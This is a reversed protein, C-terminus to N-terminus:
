IVKTSNGRIQTTFKEFINGTNPPTINVVIKGTLKKNASDAQEKTDYYLMLSASGGRLRDVATFIGLGPVSVKSGYLINVNDVACSKGSQLQKGTATKKNYADLDAGEGRGYYTSATVELTYQEGTSSPGAVGLISNAATFMSAVSQVSAPIQIFDNATQIIDQELLSNATGITESVVQNYYEPDALDRIQKPSLNKISDTAKSITQNFKSLIPINGGLNSIKSVSELASDFINDSSNFTSSINEITNAAESATQQVEQVLTTAEQIKAKIQDEILGQVSEIGQKIKNQFELPNVLELVGEVNFQTLNQPLVQTMVNALDDLKPLKFGNLLESVDVNEQVKKLLNATNDILDSSQLNM